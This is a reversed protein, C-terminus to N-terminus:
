VLTVVIDAASVAPAQDIHASVDNADVPVLWMPETATLSASSSTTSNNTVYVGAGGPTGSTQSVIVTGAPVGTGDVVAGVKINGTVSAATLNTGSGTGTFSADATITQSQSVVWSTGSGSVLYTGPTVRGSPDVIQQNAAITGSNVNQVVTLTTGSITGAIEVADTDNLCGVLISIIQAWAGLAGVPAYFRSAYITSGITSRAGGDAGAFASIIASQIQTAADAPVQASNVISVAFKITLPTPRIFTVVYSPYPPQYNGTDYVTVSTTGNYNCGPDKKSWIAQAVDADTGGVAAVFLSNAVLTYGKITLPSSTPNETVYADTVGAVGLVAGQVAPMMGIANKAVSAFRRAEFQARSETDTGLVGDAANLVTDWGPIARFIANLSGAPCAIPGVANCAFQGDISGGSPITVTGQITYLNGDAAVAVAEGAQLVTGSAGTCTATVTTAEAGNREIFYIRAIADQMRGTAYAPDAQQTYWLFIQYVNSLIGTISAALQGQPTRPDMNLNGGFAANIEASVAALIAADDPIIFGNPGLVPTPVAM